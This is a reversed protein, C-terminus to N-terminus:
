GQKRRKKPSRIKGEAAQRQPQAPTSAPGPLARGTGPTAGAKRALSGYVARELGNLAVKIGTADLDLKLAILDKQLDKLKGSLLKWAKMAQAKEAAGTMSAKGAATTAVAKELGAVDGKVGAVGGKVAGAVRQGLGKAQAGLGAKAGAYRAGLRDLWGEDIEGNEIMLQIEENILDKLQSEALKM